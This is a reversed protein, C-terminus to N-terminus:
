ALHLQIIQYEMIEETKKGPSPAVCAGPHEVYLKTKPTNTFCAYRELECKNYYTIGDTGCCPTYGFGDCSITCDLRRHLLSFLSLTHSGDHSFCVVAM